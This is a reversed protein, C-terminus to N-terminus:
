ATQTLPECTAFSRNQRENKVFDKLIELKKRGINRGHTIIAMNFFRLNYFRKLNEKTKPLYIKYMYGTYQNYRCINFNLDFEKFLDKIQRIIKRSKLDGMIRYNYSISGEDEFFTRLFELRIRKNSNMIIDPIKINQNSTSYSKFYNILNEYLAKSKFTVKYYNIKNKGEFTELSSPELGYIKKIDLIFQNILEKSSNIYRAVYHHQTKFVTGDFLLHGIIRIKSTNLSEKQPKIQKLIGKVKNYYRKKGKKDFKIDKAVKWSFKKSKKIQKSIESYSYGKQRLSKIKSKLM